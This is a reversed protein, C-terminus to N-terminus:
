YIWPLTKNLTHVPNLNLTPDGILTYMHSAFSQGFYAKSLSQGLSFKDKHLYTIFKYLTKDSSYSVAVAGMFGLGGKRIFNNCFSKADYTECTSCAHTYMVTNTLYPLDSSHMGAKYPLGHDIYGVEENNKYLGSWYSVENVVSCILDPEPVYSEPVISCRANYGINTFEKTWNNVDDISYAGGIGASLPKATFLLNNTKEFQNYFIDRALYSSVDSLTIGQIRGVALDPQNDNLSIDGYKSQDLARYFVYSKSKSMLEQSPIVNPAGFITLYGYITPSYSSISNFYLKNNFVSFSTVLDDQSVVEKVKTNIDYKMIKSSLCLSGDNLTCSIKSDYMNRGKVSIDNSAWVIQNEVISPGQLNSYLFIDDDILTKEQTLIDYLTLEYKGKNSNWEVWIVKDGYVNFSYVYSSSLSNLQSTDLNYVYLGFSTQLFINKRSMDLSYIEGFSSGNYIFKKESSGIENTYLSLSGRTRESWILQNGYISVRSSQCYSDNYISKITTSEQNNLNKLIFNCSPVSNKDYDYSMYFLNNGFIDYDDLASYIFSTGAPNTDLIKNLSGTFPDYLSLFYYGYEDSFVYKKDSSKTTGGNYKFTYIMNEKGSSLDKSFFSQSAVINGSLIGDPNNIVGPMLENIKSKIFASIVEYDISTTSIIIEHKASALIPSALSTKTYLNYFKGNSKDPQFDEYIKANLDTPNVLIMKDTNTLDVYKKQLQELTYQENCPRQVNGVCIVNRYNFTSDVDLSSGKIILPANILSAYTSAMLALEYNDEVYVIDKYSSWYYLYNDVSIRQINKNEIGAGLEPQSILLNDLEQPSEGIITINKANYQQMFYIISDADFSSYSKRMESNETNYIRIEGITKWNPYIAQEPNDTLVFKIYRASITDFTFINRFPTFDVGDKLTYHEIIKQYSVDDLSTYIDLFYPEASEFLDIQNFSTIKNLDLKLEGENSGSNWPTETNGDIVNQAPYYGDTSPNTTSTATAIAGEALNTYEIGSEEHYILTPYTCVDDATGYGKQCQSNDGEQKTWTTLSVLQLVDKWNEDSILFAKKDSYYNMNKENKSFPIITEVVCKGTTCIYGSSCSGCSGACGNDGCTKGICNPVCVDASCKNNICHHKSSNLCQSDKSCEVCIATCLNEPTLFAVNPTTGDCSVHHVWQSNEGCTDIISDWPWEYPCNPNARCDAFSGQSTNWLSINIWAASRNCGVANEEGTYAYFLCRSSSAHCYKNSSDINRITFIDYDCNGSTCEYDSNCIAGNAKLDITCQGTLNCTYGSSCSGCNVIDGCINQIGCQYGLSSCSDTCVITEVSCKGTSNCIYGSSCSGCNVRNGCITRIGCQYGLSSCSDTCIDNVKCAEEPCGTCTVSEFRYWYSNTSVDNVCYNGLCGYYTNCACAKVADDKIIVSSSDFGSCGKATQCYSSAYWKSYLIYEKSDNSVLVYNGVKDKPNEFVCDDASIAECAGSSSCKNGPSCSGCSGACGNDGCVKGACNPVCVDASCKNNICHHKSSDLCQSDKSCEVCISTCTNGPISFAVNPTTGDCSVHHVWQSNEGCTDIISDWPWEYPCNPNARCDAFSGQSTNWLSINIWAASRNCGVANEEGTYAYFLCRSSSAHCYKNSSDINRITFIDYDCNGSTCEYDSNCIAGNAKLDGTAKGTIVKKVIDGFLGASVFVVSFILIFSLTFAVKLGRKM